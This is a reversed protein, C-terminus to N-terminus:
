IIQKEKRIIKSSYTHDTTYDKNSWNKIIKSLFIEKEDIKDEWTKIEEKSEKNHEKTQTIM